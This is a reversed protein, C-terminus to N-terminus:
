WSKQMHRPHASSPAAQRERPPNAPDICSSWIAHMENKKLM